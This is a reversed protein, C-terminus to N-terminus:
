APARPERRRPFSPWSMAPKEVLHWTLAALAVTVPVAVCLAALPQLEAHRKLLVLVPLHWLYIGYSVKGLYIPAAVLARRRPLPWACVLLLTAGACLAFPTRFFVAMAPEQWYDNGALVEMLLWWVGAVLATLGYRLGAHGSIRALFAQGSPTRVFRALLLGVAFEDLMGPLQTQGMYARDVPGPAGLVVYAGWRWVWAIAVFLVVFRWPATRALWPAALAVLLYFQMEAALSWNPGNIAGWHEFSLNHLFLLHTVLNAAFGESRWLGPEVVLVFVLLMFWHLPAIRALRSRLFDARFASGQAEFRSFASLGIVFGSVVFFVDVALWGEHFWAFPGWAPFDEWQWHAILHFVLVSLAACGRVIDVLPFAPPPRGTATM